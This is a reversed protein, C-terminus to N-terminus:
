HGRGAPALFAAEIAPVVHELAFVILRDGAQVVTHGRPVIVEGTPRVLAGVVADRPFTADSLPKGVFRSEPGALLEIAEAEEDRFTTVSLVRGRRVYQLIRDVAALRPSVTTNIGLRQVMSLYNLRNILAVVKDVGLRRALMSAIINNEDDKTLALFAQVDGVGGDELTSQDTGDANIITTGKLIEAVREARARDREFLKVRVDQKELLQAVQISLQGGGLIFVRKLPAPTPLGMFRLTESASQRSTLVHVRDGEQLMASGRPIIVQPGRFIMAILSDAPPGEASLRELTWGIVPNGADLSMGILQVAGGAFEHVDSVGPLRIVRMISEALETEPHIILDVHIGSKALVDRWHHVEHTRLRLVKIRAKSEVQAIQCCLLNIEDNDTVAIVMEASAIGAKRLSLVRAANGTVIRADFQADLESCREPSPDVITVANGERILRRAILAGVQGGGAILVNM